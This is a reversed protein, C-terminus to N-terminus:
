PNKEKSPDPPAYLPCKACGDRWTYTRIIEIKVCSPVPPLTPVPYTCPFAQDKRMVRRGAKDPQIDAWICTKM